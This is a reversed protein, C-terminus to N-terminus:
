QSSARPHCFLAFLNFVPLSIQHVLFSQLYKTLDCVQITIVMGFDGVPASANQLFQPMRIDGPALYQWFQPDEILAASVGSLSFARGL